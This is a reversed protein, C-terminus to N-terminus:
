HFISIKLSIKGCLQRGGKGGCSPRWVGSLQTWMSFSLIDSIYGCAFVLLHCNGGSSLRWNQDCEVVECQSNCSVICFIALFPMTKPLNAPPLPFPPCVGTVQRSRESSTVQPWYLSSIWHMPITQLQMPFPPLTFFNCLISTGRKLKGPVNVSILATHYLPMLDFSAVIALAHIRIELLM